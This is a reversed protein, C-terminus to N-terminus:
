LLHQISGNEVEIVVSSVWASLWAALVAGMLALCAAICPKDNMMFTVWQPPIIDM